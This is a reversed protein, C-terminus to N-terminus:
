QRSGERKREEMFEKKRFRIEGEKKRKDANVLKRVSEETRWM